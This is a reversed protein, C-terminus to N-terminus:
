PSSDDTTLERSSEMYLYNYDIAVISYSNHIVSSTQKTRCM